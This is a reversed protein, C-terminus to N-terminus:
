LSEAFGTRMFELRNVLKHGAPKAKFRKREARAEMCIIKSYKKIKTGM